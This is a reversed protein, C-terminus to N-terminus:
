RLRAGSNGTRKVRECGALDVFCLQAQRQRQQQAHRQQLHTLLGGTAPAAAAAPTVLAGARPAAAAAPHVKVQVGCVCVCM